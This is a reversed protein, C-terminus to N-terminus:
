VNLAKDLDSQPIVASINRESSGQSIAKISIGNRGLVNFMTGSVGVQDKMNSGVLALLAYGEELTISDIVQQEDVNSFENKFVKIARLADQSQFGLTITLTANSHTMFVVSVEEKSLANFLRPFFFERNPLTSGSISLITVEDISSIGKILHEGVYQDSILTGEHDPHFTNKVWVPIEAKLVPAISQQYIVKAGFYSLELAEDYSVKDLTHSRKVRRPDATMIGNVDTWIELVDAHSLSAIIAATYDSGGRGLTTTEGTETSAIFGPFVNVKKLDGRLGEFKKITRTFDVTASSYSNDTVIFSRSDIMKAVVGQRILYDSVIISSVLEGSGLIFDQSKCTLEKLLFVGECVRKLQSFCSVLANSEKVGNLSKYLQFHTQELEDVLALYSPDGKQALHAIEQLRDTTHGIASVVVCLQQDQSQVIKSVQKIAEENQLSTGGFKLVKM